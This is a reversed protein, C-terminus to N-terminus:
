RQGAIGTLHQQADHAATGGRRVAGSRIDPAIDRRHGTQRCHDTHEATLMERDKSPHFVTVGVAALPDAWWRCAV